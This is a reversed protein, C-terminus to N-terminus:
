EMKGGNVGEIETVNDHEGRTMFLGRCVITFDYFITSLLNM